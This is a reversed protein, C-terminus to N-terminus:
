QTKQKVVTSIKIFKHKDSIECVFAGQLVPDQRLTAETNVLGVICQQLNKKKKKQHFGYFQINSVACMFVM